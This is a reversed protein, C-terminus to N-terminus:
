LDSQQIFDAFDGPEFRRQWDEPQRVPDPHDSTTFRTYIYDCEIGDFKTSDTIRWNQITAGTL